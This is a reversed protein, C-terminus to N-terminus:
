SDGRIDALVADLEGRDLASGFEGRDGTRKRKAQQAERLARRLAMFDVDTKAFRRILAELKNLDPHNADVAALELWMAFMPGALVNELLEDVATGVQMERRMQGLSKRASTATETVVDLAGSVESLSSVLTAWTM